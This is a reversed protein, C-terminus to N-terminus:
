RVVAVTKWKVFAAMFNETILHLYCRRAIQSRRRPSDFVVSQDAVALRCRQNTAIARDIPQTPGPEIRASTKCREQPTRLVSSLKDRWFVRGNLNSSFVEVSREDKDSSELGFLPDYFQDVEHSRAVIGGIQDTQNTTHTPMDVQARLEDQPEVVAGDHRPYFAELAAAAKTRDSPGFHSHQARRHM